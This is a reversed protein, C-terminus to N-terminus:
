QRVGTTRTLLGGTVLSFRGHDDRFMLGLALIAILWAAGASAIAVDRAAGFIAAVLVAGVIAAVGQTGHLLLVLKSKNRARFTASALVLWAQAIYEIAVIPMIPRATEWTSGLLVAGLQSPIILTLLGVIASLGSMMMGLPLISCVGVLGTMRKGSVLARRLEPVLALQAASLFVNMPGIVTAAGRLAAVGAPGVFATVSATLTIASVATIAGDGAFRVRDALDEQIWIPIGSFTPRVRLGVMIVIAACVSGLLWGLVLFWPRVQTPRFVTLVFLGFSFICWIGDSALALRPRRCALAAFRSIDQMLIFPASCGLLIFSASLGFAVSAAALTIAGAVGVTASIAICYRLDRAIGAANGAKISIPTGLAGRSISVAGILLTYEVMIEGFVSPSSVRAIAFVVFINSLSSAVQDMLGIGLRARSLM